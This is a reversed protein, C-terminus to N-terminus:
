ILNSRNQTDKIHNRKSEIRIAISNFGEPKEEHPTNRLLTRARRLKRDASTMFNEIKKSNESPLLVRYSGGSKEFYKGEKLLQRRVYDTMALEFLELEKFTERTATEPYSINLLSYIDNIPIVCGYELWNNEQLIGYFDKCADTTSILNNM